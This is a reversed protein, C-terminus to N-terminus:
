TTTQYTPSNEYAFENFPNANFGQLGGNGFTQLPTLFGSILGDSSLTLGDPLAGNDLNWTLQANPNLETAKLQLSYYEGDFVQGLNTVRPVIVPPNVNAIAMTFSKDSILGHADTARVTFEYASSQNTKSNLYPGGQILGNPNIRIGPPLTGALFKYTVSGGNPDYADIPYEFYSGETVTGLNVLRQGQGTLWIPNAM